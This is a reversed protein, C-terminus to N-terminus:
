YKNRGRGPEMRQRGTFARRLEGSHWKPDQVEVGAAFPSPALSLNEEEGTGLPCLTLLRQQHRWRRRGEQLARSGSAERCRGEPRAAVPVKARGSADPPDQPRPLGVDDVGVIGPRMRDSQGREHAPAANGEDNGAPDSENRATSELVPVPHCAEDRYRVGHAIGQHASADVRGADVDDVGAYRRWPDVHSAIPSLFTAPWGVRDEAADDAGHGHLLAHRQEVVDGSSQRVLIASARPEDQEAARRGAGHANAANIGISRAEDVFHMGGHRAEIDEPM